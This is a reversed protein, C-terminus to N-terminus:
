GALAAARAGRSNWGYLWAEAAVLLYVYLAGGGDATFAPSLMAEVKARDLFGQQVLAGDLVLDRYFGLNAQMVKLLYSDAGGKGARRAIEPPILDAFAARELARDIGGECFVYTPTQLAFETIPQSFFPYIVDRTIGRGHHLHYHYLSVIAVLHEAKGRPLRAADAFWPHLKYADPIAQAVDLSLPRQATWEERELFAYPRWPAPFLESAAARALSSWISQQQLMSTDYATTWFDKGFGNLRVYDALPNRVAGRQLFLNDGGQGIMFAEAGTEEALRISADDILMALSQVKPRALRPEDLIRRVDDKLPDQELEVLRVGAHAAARRALTAEYRERGVGLYHLATLDASSNRAMLAVLISSDLGGSLSAVIKPYESGWAAFCAEATARLRDKAEGFSLDSPAAAIKAGHWVWAFAPDAHASWDLRQGPMLEAMECLGTKPTVFYNFLVFAQLYTWDVNFRVNPLAAIDDPHAYLLQVGETQSMFCPTGGCPDRLAHVHPSALDRWIAVYNGWYEHVLSAGGSAGIRAAAGADLRRVRGNREGGREFLPGLVVGAGNAWPTVVPAGSRQNLSLVKVGPQDLVITWFRSARQLAASWREVQVQRPLAESDWLFAVFRDM